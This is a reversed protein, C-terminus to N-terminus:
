KELIANWEREFIKRSDLYKDYGDIFIGLLKERNKTLIGKVSMISITRAINQIITNVENLLDRQDSNIKNYRREYEKINM